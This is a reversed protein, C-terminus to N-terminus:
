QTKSFAFDHLQLPRAPGPASQPDLDGVSLSSCLPTQDGSWKDVSHYSSAFLTGSGGFLGSSVFRELLNTDVVWFVRHRTKIKIQVKMGSTTKVLKGM